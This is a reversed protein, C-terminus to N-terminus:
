TALRISTSGNKSVRCYSGICVIWAIFMAFVVITCLTKISYIIMAFTVINCLTELSCIIM